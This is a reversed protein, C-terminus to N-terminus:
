DEMEWPFMNLTAKVNIQKGDKGDVPFSIMKDEKVDTIAM